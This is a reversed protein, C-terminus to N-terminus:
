HQWHTDRMEDASPEVGELFAEAADNGHDIEAGDSASSASQDRGLSLRDLYSRRWLELWPVALVDHVAANVGVAGDLNLINKRPRFRQLSRHSLRSALGGVSGLLDVPTSMRWDTVLWNPASEEVHAGVNPMGVLARADRCNGSPYRNHMVHAIADVAAGATNAGAVAADGHVVVAVAVDGHAAGVVVVTAIGRTSHGGCNHADVSGVGGAGGGAEM